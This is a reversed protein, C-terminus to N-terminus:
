FTLTMDNAEHILADIKGFHVDQELVSLVNDWVIAEEV